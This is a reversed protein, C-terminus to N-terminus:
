LLNITLIKGICVNLIRSVYIYLDSIICSGYCHEEIIGLMFNEFEIYESCLDVSVCECVSLVLSLCSKPLGELQSASGLAAHVYWMMFIILSVNM